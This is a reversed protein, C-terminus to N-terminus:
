CQKSQGVFYISEIKYRTKRGPLTICNNNMFTDEDYFGDELIRLFEELLSYNGNLPLRIHSGSSLKVTAIIIQNCDNLLSKFLKKLLM